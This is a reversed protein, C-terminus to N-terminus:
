RPVPEPLRARAFITPMSATEFAGIKNQAQPVRQQLLAAEDNSVLLTADFNEAAQAEWEALKRGERAYVWSLPLAAYTRITDV